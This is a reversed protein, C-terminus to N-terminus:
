LASKADITQDYVLRTRVGTETKEAVLRISKNAPFTWLYELKATGDLVCPTVNQACKDPISQKNETPRMYKDVLLERLKLVDRIPQKASPDEPTLLEIHCLKNNCFRVQVAGVVGVSWPMASCEYDAGKQTWALNADTCAAEAVKLPSGFRFAAVGEPGSDEMLVPKKATEGSSDAAGAAKRRQCRYATGSVTATTATGDGSGMQPSEHQVFNANMKAAQNRLDNMAYEVLSENTIYGGGFTGGGRGVIYGLSQCSTPEFGFASPASPSIAVDAGGSSLDATKCGSTTFVGVVVALGWVRLM